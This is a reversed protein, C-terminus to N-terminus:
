TGARTAGTHTPSTAAVAQIFEASRRYILEADHDMTAVHYSDALPVVELRATGIRRQLVRMSSEPVTHDVASRFVLTPATVRPLDAVVTKFLQGLQHAAAVPTRDYAGEDIGPMSIDNGIAPVSKLVYKMLGSFPARPDAITLGPNVLLVGSVPRHAALRLALAGGMSLGAVFVQSRERALEAFAQEAAGYWSQWRSTGLDQWTTGHGPLLPLRVAFGADALSEAWGRMSRPSGTFGHLLVVGLRSRPGHGSSSFAGDLASTM